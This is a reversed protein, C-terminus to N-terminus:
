HIRFFPLGQAASAMIRSDWGSENYRTLRLGHLSALRRKSMGTHWGCASTVDMGATLALSRVGGSVGGIRM